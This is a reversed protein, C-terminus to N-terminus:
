WYVNFELGGAIKYGLEELALECALRDNNGKFISQYKFAISSEGRRSAAEIALMIHKFESTEKYYAMLEKQKADTIQRATSATIILDAM